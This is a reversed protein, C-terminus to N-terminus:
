PKSRRAFRTRLERLDKSFNNRDNTFGELNSKRVRQVHGRTDSKATRSEVDSYPILVTAYEANSKEGEKSKVPLVYVTKGSKKLIATQM